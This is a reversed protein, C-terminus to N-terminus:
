SVPHLEKESRAVVSAVTVDGTVNAVTRLMDLPRDVGLILALGEVPIGVSNLVIIMMVISGGPIGPSGVSSILATLIILIQQGFSLDLGFAQAIFVAAVAQYLSTGDMNVTVGLPLVFNAINGSVGFKEKCQKLNVPLTVASSSSSFAVLQSPLIGKLYQGYKIGSVMRILLPYFLLLLVMIGTIVTLMYLGLAAFVETDGSFDVVLAAMLAFVGVPATKMVIDIIKLIIDNLSDFFLRVPETRNAPLIMMAVAFLVAFFIVQLMNRNNGAAEVINEPVIDVLYKLPSNETIETVSEKNSVVKEKYAELYVAKKSAPFVNGPKIVNVLVLGIIIAFVTTATFLLLTKIGVRKFRTIDNMSSIGKIISVFVLPIAILKLLNLFIIGWPKIWNLSFKEWGLWLALFGFLVGALMGLLINIWLKSRKM